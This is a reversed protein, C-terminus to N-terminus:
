GESETMRAGCYPCWKYDPKVRGFNHECRSCKWKKETIYVPGDDTEDDLVKQYFYEWKGTPRTSQVSPLAKIARQLLLLKAFDIELKEASGQIFITEKVAQRSICDECPQQELEKIYKYLEWSEKVTLALGRQLKNNIEKNM